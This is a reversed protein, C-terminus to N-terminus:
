LGGKVGQQKVLHFHIWLLLCMLLPLAIVHLAYFRTLTAGTVDAGGRLMVMLAPGIWPIEGAMATGVETAWYAKQDWPLLYGTFGSALAVVLTLVGVVWNFERPHRYAKYVFVRVTHLVIAVIFLHASWKHLSRVFGGLRVEQHLDSISRYADAESPIYYMALMFGTAYLLLFLFFAIGGLCFFYNVGEPISRQFLRRHPKKLNFFRDSLDLFWGM